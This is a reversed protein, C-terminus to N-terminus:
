SVSSATDSFSLFDFRELMVITRIIYNRELNSFAVLRNVQDEGQLGNTLSHWIKLQRTTIRLESLDVFNHQRRELKADRYVEFFDVVHEGTGCTTVSENLLQFLPRSPEYAFRVPAADTTFFYRGVGRLAIQSLLEAAYDQLTELLTMYGIRGLAVVGQVVKDVDIEGLLEATELIEADVLGVRAIYAGVSRDSGYGVIRVIRGKSWTIDIRGDPGHLQLTGSVKKVAYRYLLRILDLGGADGQFLINKPPTISERHPLQYHRPLKPTRALVQVKNQSVVRRAGPPM